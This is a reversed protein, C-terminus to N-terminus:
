AAETVFLEEINAQRFFLPKLALITGSITGHICRTYPTENNWKQISSNRPSTSGSFSATMASCSRRCPGREIRPRRLLVLWLGLYAIFIFSMTVCALVAMTGPQTHFPILPSFPNQAHFSSVASKQHGHNAMWIHILLLGWIAKCPWRQIWMAWSSAVPRWLSIPKLHHTHYPPWWHAFAQLSFHKAEKERYCNM